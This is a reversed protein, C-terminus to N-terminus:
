PQVGTQFALDCLLSLWTPGTFVMKGFGLNGKSEACVERSIFRLGSRTVDQGGVYEASRLADAEESSAAAPSSPVTKPVRSKRGM